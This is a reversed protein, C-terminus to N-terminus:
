PYFVKYLFVPLNNAVSVAAWYNAPILIHKLKKIKLFM